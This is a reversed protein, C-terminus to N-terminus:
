HDRRAGSGRFSSWGDGGSDRRFHHGDDRHWANSNDSYYFSGDNGWYGDHFAGYSGDYYGNYYNGGSVSVSARDHGRYGRDHYACGSLLIAALGTVPLAKLIMRMYYNKRLYGM